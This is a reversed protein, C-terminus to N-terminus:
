PKTGAKQCANMKELRRVYGLFSTNFRKEVMNLLEAPVKYSESSKWNKLSKITKNVGEQTVESVMPEVGYLNERRMSNTPIDANLLEIFYEKWREAKEKPDM